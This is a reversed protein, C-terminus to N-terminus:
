LAALANDNRPARVANVFGAARLDIRLNEGGAAGYETNAITLLKHGMHQAAVDSLTLLALISEGSELARARVSEEGAQVTLELDPHIMAVLHFRGGFSKSTRPPVDVHGTAAM